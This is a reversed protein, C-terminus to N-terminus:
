RGRPRSGSRLSLEDWDLTVFDNHWGGPVNHPHLPRANITILMSMRAIASPMMMNAMRSAITSPISRM